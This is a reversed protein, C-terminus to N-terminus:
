HNKFEHVSFSPALPNKKIQFDFRRCARDVHVLMKGFFGFVYVRGIDQCGRRYVSRLPDLNHAEVYSLLGQYNKRTYNKLAKAM